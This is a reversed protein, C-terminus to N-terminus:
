MQREKTAKQRAALEESAKKEIMRQNIAEARKVFDDQERQKHLNGVANYNPASIVVAPSPQHAASAPSQGRAFGNAQM